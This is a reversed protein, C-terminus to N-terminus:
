FSSLCAKLLALSCRSMKAGSILWIHGIAIRFSQTYGMQLNLKDQSSLLLM